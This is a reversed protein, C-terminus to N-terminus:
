NVNFLEDFLKIIDKDDKVKGSIMRNMERERKMKVVDSLVKITMRSVRSFYNGDVSYILMHTTLIEIATNTDDRGCVASTLEDVSAGSVNKQICDLASICDSTIDEILKNVEAREIKRLCLHTKVVNYQIGNPEKEVWGRAILQKLFSKAEDYSLKYKSQIWPVSICDVKKLVDQIDLANVQTM